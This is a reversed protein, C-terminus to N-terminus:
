SPSSWSTAGPQKPRSTRPLIREVNGELDGVVVDIQAAAVRLRHMGLLIRRRPDLGLRHVRSGLVGLM